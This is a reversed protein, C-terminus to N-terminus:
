TGGEASSCGLVLGVSMFYRIPLQMGMSFLQGPARNGRLNSRKDNYVHTKHLNLSEIVVTGNVSNEEMYRKLFSDNDNESWALFTFLVCMLTLVGRKM